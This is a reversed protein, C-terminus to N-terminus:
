YNSGLVSSFLWKHERTIGATFIGLSLSLRTERENLIDMIFSSFHDFFYSNLIDGGGEMHKRDKKIVKSRKIRGKM